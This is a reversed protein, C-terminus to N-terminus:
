WSGDANGSGQDHGALGLASYFKALFGEGGSGVVLDWLEQANNARREDSTTSDHASSGRLQAIKALEVNLNVVADLDVNPYARPLVSWLPANMGNETATEIIKAWGSLQIKNWNERSYRRPSNRPGPVTLKLEKSESLEQIKAEIIQHFLSEVAKCIYIGCDDWEKAFKHRLAGILHEVTPFPLRNLLNPLRERLLGHWYEDSPMVRDHVDEVLNDTNRETRLVHQATSSAITEIRVLSDAIGTLSVRRDGADDAHADAFGIRMAWYLDSQASLHPPQAANWPISGQRRYEIDSSNYFKLAWQRYEDWSDPSTELLVGAIHWCNEWEGADIEDLLSARLSTRAVLLRGLANGYYWAWFQRTTAPCEEIHDREEEDIKDANDLWQYIVDLCREVASVGGSGSLQTLWGDFRRVAVECPSVNRWAHDFSIPMLNLADEFRGVREYLVPLRDMEREILLSYDVGPLHFRIRPVFISNLDEFLEIARDPDERSVLVALAARSYYYAAERATMRHNPFMEQPDFKPVPRDRRSDLVLYHLDHKAKKEFSTFIEIGLWQNHELHLDESRAIHLMAARLLAWDDLSPDALDRVVNNYDGLYVSREEEIGVWTLMMSVHEEHYKLVRQRTDQEDM